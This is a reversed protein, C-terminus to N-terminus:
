LNVSLVKNHKIFSRFLYKFIQIVTGIISKMSIMSIRFLKCLSIKKCSNVEQFFIAINRGCSTTIMGQDTCCKGMFAAVLFLKVRDCQLTVQQIFPNIQKSEDYRNKSKDTCVTM